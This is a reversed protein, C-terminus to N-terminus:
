RNALFTTSVYFTIFRQNCTYWLIRDCETFYGHFARDSLM